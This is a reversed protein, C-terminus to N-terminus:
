PSAAWVNWDVTWQLWTKSPDRLCARVTDCTQWQCNDAGECDQQSTMALCIDADSGSSGSKHVCIPDDECVIADAANQAELASTPGCWVTPRAAPNGTRDVQVSMQEACPNGVIAKWGDYAIWVPIQQGKVYKSDCDMDPYTRQQGDATTYALDMKCNIDTVTATAPKGLWDLPALPQKDKDFLGGGYDQFCFADETTSCRELCADLDTQCTTNCWDEMGEMQEYAPKPKYHQLAACYPQKDVCTGTTWTQWSPFDM